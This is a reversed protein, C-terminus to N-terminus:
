QVTATPWSPDAVRRVGSRDTSNAAHRATVGPGIEVTPAIEALPVLVFARDPIRPHPIVLEDESSEAGEYLLIDIDIVRPGYRLTRVRGMEQEIRRCTALLDRPNLATRVRIVANLFDPQDAIGVPKTEYLSSAATLDCGRERLMRVAARLNSERDGLNAGLGLYVTREMGHVNYCFHRGQTNPTLHGVGSVWCRLGKPRRRTCESHLRM